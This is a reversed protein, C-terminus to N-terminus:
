PPGCIRHYSGPSFDPARLRQARRVSPILSSIVHVFTMESRWCKIIMAMWRRGRGGGDRHRRKIKGKM